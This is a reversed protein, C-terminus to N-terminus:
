ATPRRAAGPGGVRAATARTATSAFRLACLSLLSNEPLPYLNDQPLPTLQLFNLGTAFLSKLM